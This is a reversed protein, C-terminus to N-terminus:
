PATASAMMVASPAHILEAAARNHRMEVHQMLDFFRPDDFACHVNKAIRARREIRLEARLDPDSNAPAHCDRSVEARGMSEGVGREPGAVDTCMMQGFFRTRQADALLERLM